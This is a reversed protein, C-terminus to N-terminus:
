AFLSKYEMCEPHCNSLEELISTSMAKNESLGIQKISWILNQPWLILGEGM